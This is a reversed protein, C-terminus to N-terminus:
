DSKPIFDLSARVTGDGEIDSGTFFTDLTVLLSEDDNFSVWQLPDANMDYALSDARRVQPSGGDYLYVARQEGDVILDLDPPLYTLVVSFLPDCQDEPDADDPWISLRVMRAEFDTRFTIYPVVGLGSPEVPSIRAWQRDFTYGDEIDWGDPYFDPATPAAVLAPFEPDYIPSYDYVPCSEQILATSGSDDVAPGVASGTEILTISEVPEGYEFPDAATMTFTALWTSSCDTQRKRTVSTGRTQRVDRHHVVDADADGTRFYTLDAGSCFARTGSDRLIKNLWRKGYEAGRETSAVIAVSVVISKTSNRPKGSHGGDTIYEIPTSSLTSDDLGVFGLSVIGAFEGSAPYGADYWPANVPNAYDPGGVTDNIWQVSEPSIWVTDIGLTQALQVTRSHNILETGNYKVWGDYSM